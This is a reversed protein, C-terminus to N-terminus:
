NVATDETKLADYTPRHFTASPFLRALAREVFPIDEIAVYIIFLGYVIGVAMCPSLIWWSYKYIDQIVQAFNVLVIAVAFIWCAVSLAIHNVFEGMYQKSSTLKLVPLLAFPLQISQLVNLAEDLTDLESEAVVAVIVAPVIAVSRTLLVRKWPAISLKLFGQMVFQGAYTGTMTSSQGAALLGIAWIYLAATGFRCGLYAGASSLGVESPAECNPDQYVAAAGFVAV